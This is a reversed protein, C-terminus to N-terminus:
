NSVPRLAGTLERLPGYDACQGAVDVAIIGVTRETIREAAQNVDICWTREDVDCFVPTARCFLVAHGTAPYTYDAVIVEDGESVGHALLALHLGATANAVAIAHKANCALAFREEFARSRPGQGAVWNSRFVESVASLEAEGLSPEGLAIQHQM